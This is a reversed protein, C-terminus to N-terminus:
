STIGAATNGRQGVVWQLFMEVDKAIARPLALNQMFKPLSGGVDGATAMIWEIKNEMKRIREVSTYTGVVFAPDRCDKATSDPLSPLDCVTVSVVIFESSPSPLLSVSLQLIPFTRNKMPWPTKHSMEVVSDPLLKTIVEIRIGSPKNLISVTCSCMGMSRGM